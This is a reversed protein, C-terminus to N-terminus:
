CSELQAGGCVTQYRRTALFRFYAGRDDQASERSIVDIAYGKRRFFEALDESYFVYGYANVGADCWRAEANRQARYIAGEHELQVEDHTEPSRGEACYGGVFINDALSTLNELFVFPEISHYYVGHAFALDYRGYKSADTNHFDDLFIRVPWGFADTAARTKIANDPRAEICDVQAGLHVLGATQFADLPGFELVRKGALPFRANLEDLPGFFREGLYYSFVEDVNPLIYELKNKLLTIQAFPLLLEPMTFVRGQHQQKLRVVARWHNPRTPTAAVVVNEGPASTVDSEWNWRVVRLRADSLSALRYDNGVELLLTNASPLSKLRIKLLAPLSRCQLLDDLPDYRDAQVLAAGDTSLKQALRQFNAQPSRTYAARALRFLPNM